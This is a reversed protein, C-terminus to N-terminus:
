KVAERRELFALCEARTGLGVKGLLSSRSLRDEGVEEGLFLGFDM